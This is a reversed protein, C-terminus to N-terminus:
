HIGGQEWKGRQYGYSQKSHRHTEKQDTFVNMQRMNKLNWMYTIDYSIQRERDWQQKKFRAQAKEKSSAHGQFSTKSCPEAPYWSPAPAGSRLGGRCVYGTHIRRGVRLTEM